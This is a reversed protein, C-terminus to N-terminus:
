SRYAMVEPSIRAKSGRSNSRQRGAGAVAQHKHRNRALRVFTEQLVDDADPRSGLRVALYHHLRDAFAGYLETFAAQDGAALKAGLYEMTGEGAAVMVM